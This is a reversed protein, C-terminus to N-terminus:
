KCGEKASKYILEKGWGSGFMAELRRLPFRGFGYNRRSQHRCPRRDDERVYRESVSEKEQLTCGKSGSPSSDGAPSELFHQAVSRSPSSM